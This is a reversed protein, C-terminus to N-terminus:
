WELFRHVWGEPLDVSTSGTLGFVQTQQLAASAIASTVVFDKAWASPFPTMTPNDAPPAWKELMLGDFYATEGKNGNVTLKVTLTAANQLFFTAFYRKWHKSNGYITKLEEQNTEKMVTLSFSSNTAPLPPSWRGWFSVVYTANSTLLDKYIKQTASKNVTWNEEDIDWYDPKGDDKVTVSAIYPDATSTPVGNVDVYGFDDEFSSNRILNRRFQWLDGASSPMADNPNAAAQSWASRRLYGNEALFSTLSAVTGERLTKM